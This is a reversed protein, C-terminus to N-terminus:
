SSYRGPLSVIFASGKEPESEVNITGNHKEVFEKCLLLGFGTGSEGRTGKQSKSEGIKFLANKTKEDMGIGSDSIKIQVTEDKEKASISILGNDPTFKIANSLLNRIVTKLMESDAKLIIDQPVDIKVQLNKAETSNNVLIHTEKVLHYLNTPQPNFPIKNQQSRSWELLNELLTFTNKGSENILQIYRKIKDNNLDDFHNILLDSFGLIASFPNKLDHAIINFFKDKTAIADKLEKNLNHIKAETEKKNYINWVTEMLLNLQLIDDDDYEDMKNAVAVVAAIKNEIIFPVSLFRKIKVHGDPFGKQLPNPQDLDNVMIAKRQRVVEGWLGTNKLQYVTQKEITKCDPLVSDSWSNLYFKEEAESYHHVFGYESKTIKIATNLAYDFIQQKDNTSQQSLELLDHLRTSNSKIREEAEKRDTIDRVIGVANWHDKIKIASLSVEVPFVEGSKRIAELETTKGIANGKGSKKFTEFGKDQQEKYKEPSIIKHLDKGLVESETYQFIKEAAANWFSIKGQHDILIIADNASNSITKFKAESEKLAEEAKKRETIDRTIAVLEIENNKTYRYSNKIEVWFVKGNKHVVQAEFLFSKKSIESPNEMFKEVVVAMRENLKSAYEPVYFKEHPMNLAEEQTYGHVKYVAPSIYTLKNQTVNFLSIVDSANETIMRYKEENEKFAQEAKRLETLDYGFAWNQIETSIFGWKIHKLTGNKARAITEIPETDSHTEIARKVIETWEDNIKQQYNKDPYAKDWWEAVNPVDEITYGLLRTFEPNIYEHVQEVGSSVVIAIPTKDIITKIKQEAMKQQNINRVIGTMVIKGNEKSTIIGTDDFWIYKDEITKIRYQTKYVDLEGNILKHMAQMAPEYDDPHLIDMFHKYHTFDEPNRGLMLAKNPNFIIAGSPLEMEWWAMDGSHMSAELRHNIQILKEEAKKRETIDVAMQFHVDRQDTWKIKRDMVFFHKELVSNYYERFYPEDNNLINNIPCFQCAIPNNHIAQHCQEGIINRGTTKKLNKNAFLIEHTYIDAVYINEPISDLLSLFQKRENEILLNKVRLEDNSAYLEEFANSLETTIKQNEKETNIRETIDHIISFLKTEEAFQITASYVEVSRIEGNALKHQFTFYKEGTKRTNEIEEKIENEPMLNLDSLNLSKFKNASYGYFDCAAPNADEIQGTDPNIILMMVGSETFLSKMRNESELLKKQTKIEEEFQKIQSMDIVSCRVLKEGSEEDYYTVASLNAFILDDQRSKFIIEGYEIEDSHFVQKFYKTFQKKSNEELYPFISTYKFTQIPTKLMKAAAQNLELINGTKNLTFYAVPANMYLEKYRKQEHKLKHNSEQLELNQMELEIQHINLEEVLKDIDEYYREPKELGKEKLLREAKERLEKYKSDL